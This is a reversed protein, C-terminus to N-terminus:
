KANIAEKVMEVTEVMCLNQPICFLVRWGLCAAANLKEHEKMLAAGRSHRGGSFLGGQVELAVRNDFTFDFRWKRDPHFKVEPTAIVGHEAFWKVVVAPNYKM